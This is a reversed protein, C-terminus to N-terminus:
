VVARLARIAGQLFRDVAPRDEESLEADIVALERFMPMLFGVVETRGSASITVSTRRGDSQHSTRQAHGRAELRDIIGSAAASSVGLVRGLEGPGMPQDMLHELARLENHTLQARRAVAPAVQEALRTLTRLATLTSSSEMRSSLEDRNSPQATGSSSESM